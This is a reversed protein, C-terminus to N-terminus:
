RSSSSGDEAERATADGLGLMAALWWPAHRPVHVAPILRETRGRVDARAVLKADVAVQIDRIRRRAKLRIIDPLGALNDVRGSQAVGDWKDSAIPSLGTM